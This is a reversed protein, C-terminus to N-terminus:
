VMPLDHLKLEGAELLAVLRNTELWALDFQARSIVGAELADKLEDADKIEIRGDPSVVIDLYLDDFYPVGRDDFGHGLVIDIYWQVISGSDFMATIVHNTGDPLYHLWTFGSDAVCISAEGSSVCFPERVRIMKLESVWGQFHELDCRLLRDQRELIRDWDSRDVFRRKM